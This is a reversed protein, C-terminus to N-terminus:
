FIRSLGFIAAPITLLLSLVRLPADLGSLGTGREDVVVRDGGHLSLQDLTRGDALAQRMPEEGWLTSGGREIRIEDLKAQPTPGGAAMLADAVPTETPLTYFGPRAVAGTFALRIVTRTRVVPDRVFRGVHDALHAQLESRLVGRLPVIGVTPLALEPGERVTFTDTLTEETEVMLLVRDGVQFDGQELRSRIVAAQQAAEGRLRGSYGPSQSAADLRTLLRQLDERSAHGRRPDWTQQASISGAAVLLVVAPMLMLFRRM